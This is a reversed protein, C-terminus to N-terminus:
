RMLIMKRTQTFMGTKITYFYVGSPVPQGDHDTADWQVRYSGPALIRDELVKVLRGLVDYIQILVRYHSQGTPLQYRIETIPNFPNPYNQELTFQDPHGVPEPEILTPNPDVYFASYPTLIQFRLSLDIIQNVLEDTEGYTQILGLIHDIKARAWLRPVFRQGGVSDAFHITQTFEFPKARMEGSVKVPYHGSGRYLGLLQIQSGWYLDQINKPYLDWTKLGGFDISINHLVPKSMRLFHASVVEAISDDSSIFYAFGHNQTSLNYLFARNISEGVGFSFIRVDKTNIRDVRCLISDVNKEGWTPEGDTLFILNKLTTDLFSQTLSERLALDINTMGLAYLQLIFDGAQQLYEQSAPVLDPQFKQVFNGFTVINFRDTPNLLSLFRSLASKVQAMREGEMSSSIDVTFVVNKPLVDELMLAEPPTIWLSFFRDDGFSDTVAPTYALLDIQVDNRDLTYEIVLDRDPFFNEDGFFFHYHTDSIKQLNSASSQPHTPSEFRAFPLQSWADLTVAVTQLARPSLELTNLLFKYSVVGLDYKLPEIFTIETRVETNADIPVISLRYLNDGLYELLAPDLWERLRKNYDRVAEQRERIQSTFRQGNVWYVLGSIMANEPLPFIYIAEVSTNMENKFVQDVKTVAVQGQLTVDVVVTKIWMKEYNVSSWQPRCFLAGVAKADNIFALLLVGIV